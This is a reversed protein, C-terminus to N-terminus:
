GEYGINVVVVKVIVNYVVKDFIYLFILMRFNNKFDKFVIIVCKGEVILDKWYSDDKIKM